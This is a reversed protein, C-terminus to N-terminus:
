ALLLISHIFKQMEVLM